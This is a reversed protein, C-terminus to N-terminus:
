EGEVTEISSSTTRIGRTGRMRMIPDCKSKPYIDYFQEIGECSRNLTRLLPWLSIKMFAKDEEVKQLEAVYFVIPIILNAAPNGGLRCIKHDIM